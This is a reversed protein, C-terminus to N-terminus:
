PGLQLAASRAAARRRSAMRALSTATRSRRTACPPPLPHRRPAGSTWMWLPPLSSQRGPATGGAAAAPAAAPAAASAAAAPSAAAPPSTAHPSATTTARPPVSATSTSAATASTGRRASSRSPPQPGEYYDRGFRMEARASGPPPQPLDQQLQTLQRLAARDAPGTVPAASQGAEAEATLPQLKGTKISRCRLMPERCSPCPAQTGPTGPFGRKGWSEAHHAICKLHFLHPASEDAGPPQPCQLQVVDGATGLEEQCIPCDESLNEMGWAPVSQRQSVSQTQLSLQQLEEKTQQLQRKLDRTNIITNLRELHLEEAESLTAEKRLQELHNKETDNLKAITSEHVAASHAEVTEEGAAVAAATARVKVAAKAAAEAERLTCQKQLRESLWSAATEYPQGSANKSDWPAPLEDLVSTDLAITPTDPGADRGRRTGRGTTPDAAAPADEAPLQARTPASPLSPPLPTVAPSQGAQGPRRKAASVLNWVAAVQGASASQGARDLMAMADPPLQAGPRSEAQKQAATQSTAWSDGDGSCDGTSGGDM